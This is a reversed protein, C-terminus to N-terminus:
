IELIIIFVMILFTIGFIWFDEPKNKKNYVLFLWILYILIWIYTLIFSSVMIIYLTPNLHILSFGTMQSGYKLTLFVNEYIKNGLHMLLGPLIIIWYIKVWYPSKVKKM